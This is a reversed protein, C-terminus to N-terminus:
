CFVCLVNDEFGRQIKRQKSSFQSVRWCVSDERGKIDVDMNLTIHNQRRPQVDREFVSRTYGTNHYAKM